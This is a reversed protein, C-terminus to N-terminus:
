KDCLLKYVTEFIDRTVAVSEVGGNVKTYIAYLCNTEADIWKNIYAESDEDRTVADKYYRREASITHVLVEDAKLDNVFSM